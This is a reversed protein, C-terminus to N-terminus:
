AVGMPPYELPQRREQRQTEVSDNSSLEQTAPLEDEVREVGDPIPSGDRLYLPGTDLLKRERILGLRIM